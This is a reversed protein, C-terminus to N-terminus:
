ESERIMQIFEAMAGYDEHYVDQARGFVNYWDKAFYPPYPQFLARRIPNGDEDKQANGDKTAVAYYTVIDMAACIGMAIAYDKGTIAPLVLDDGNEDTKYMSQSLFIANYPADIVGDVWRTFANQWKQHDQIAPIDLDRASNEEHRVGLLWRIYLTQARPLSDVILWDEPGMKEGALKTAAVIHPWDPARMLGAKSGTRKASISGRECALFTANPAGGALTTKGHGSPGHILWNITPNFGALDEIEISVNEVDAEVAEPAERSQKASPRARKAGRRAATPPV